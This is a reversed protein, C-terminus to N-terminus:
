GVQLRTLLAAAQDRALLAAELAHLAAQEPDQDPSLLAEMQNRLRTIEGDPDPVHQAVAAEFVQIFCRIADCAASIIAGGHRHDIELALAAALFRLGREFSEQNAGGPGSAM